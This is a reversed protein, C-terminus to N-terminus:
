PRAELTARWVNEFGKVPELKIRTEIEDPDADPETMKIFAKVDRKDKRLARLTFVKSGARILPPFQKQFNLAPM